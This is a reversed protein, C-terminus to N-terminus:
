KWAIRLTDGRYNTYEARRVAPFILGPASRERDSNPWLPTRCHEHLPMGKEAWTLIEAAEVLVYGRNWRDYDHFNHISHALRREPPVFVEILVNLVFYPAVMVFSRKLGVGELVIHGTDFPLYAMLVAEIDGAVVAFPRVVAVDDKGAAPEQVMRPARYVAFPLLARINKVLVISFSSLDHLM